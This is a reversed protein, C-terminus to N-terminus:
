RVRNDHILRDGFFYPAFELSSARIEEVFCLDIPERLRQDGRLSQGVRGEDALGGNVDGLLDAQLYRIACGHQHCRKGPNSAIKWERDLLETWDERPVHDFVPAFP